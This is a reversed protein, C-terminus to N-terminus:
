DTRTLLAGTPEGCPQGAAAVQAGRLWTARVRGRMPEGIWPTVDHRHHLAEPQLQWRAEPDFAIVDADFGAALKGKRRDLGALRAPAACMWEVLREPGHGRASAESWIASLGLQLGAIGGWAADFDGRKLQPTCPSHDSVVADLVGAHLAEWLQERNDRDRIPPACKYQTAGDPIDESAFHLYHPCTEASLPLGDHRARLLTDLSSASCHHVVHIPAGTSRCLAVLLAVAEDEAANPRSALWTAHREHAPDGPPPLRGAVAAIPGPLEAHALLPRRAEALIPLALLLDDAGVHGFEEVGSDILFSKFGAVGADILAPIDAANGPVVGGWFAVDVHCNGSAAARKAELGALTTTPPISNLPMDVLTTVGGVAAARTASAFGEWATRGPENLHVHTDVLGPMVLWDGLDETPAESPAEAPDVVDVIRGAAILVAGPRFAVGQGTARAVRKGTLVLEITVVARSAVM